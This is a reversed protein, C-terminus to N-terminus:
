KIRRPKPPKNRRPTHTHTSSRSEVPFKYRKWFAMIATQMQVCDCRAISNLFVRTGAACQRQCLVHGAHVEERSIRWQHVVSVASTSGLASCLIFIYGFVSVIDLCYWNNVALLLLKHCRFESSNKKNGGVTYGVCYPVSRDPYPKIRIQITSLELVASTLTSSYNTCTCDTFLHLHINYIWSRERKEGQDKSSFRARFKNGHVTFCRRSSSGFDSVSTIQRNWLIATKFVWSSVFSFIFKFFWALTNSAHIIFPCLLVRGDSQWRCSRIKIAGVGGGGGNTAM